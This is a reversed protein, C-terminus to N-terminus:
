ADVLLELRERSRDWLVEVKTPYGNIKTHLRSLTRDINARTRKVEEPSGRRIHYTSTPEGIDRGRADLM